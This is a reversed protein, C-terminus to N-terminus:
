KLGFSLQKAITIRALPYFLRKIQPVRLSVQRGITGCRVTLFGPAVIKAPKELNTLAELISTGEGIYQNIGVSLTLTCLLEAREQVKRPRGRKKSPM